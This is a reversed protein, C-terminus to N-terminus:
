KPPHVQLLDFVKENYIQLFSCYVNFKKASFDQEMYRFLNFLVRPLMGSFNEDNAIDTVYTNQHIQRGGNNFFLSEWDSGFM